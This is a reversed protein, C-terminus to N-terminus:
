TLAPLHTGCSGGPAMYCGRVTGQTPVGARWRGRPEPSVDIVAIAIPAAPSASSPVAPAFSASTIPSPTSKLTRPSSPLSPVCPHLPTHRHHTVSAPAAPLPPFPLRQTPKAPASPARDWGMGQPRDELATDPSFSPHKVLRHVKLFHCNGTEMRGAPLHVPGPGPRADGGGQQRAVSGWPM